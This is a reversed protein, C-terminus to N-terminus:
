HDFTLKAHPYLSFVSLSFVQEGQSEYILVGECLYNRKQNSTTWAGKM